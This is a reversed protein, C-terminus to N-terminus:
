RAEPQTMSAEVRIERRREAAGKNRAMAPTSEALPGLRVWQETGEEGEIGYNAIAENRIKTWAQHMEHPYPGVSKAEQFATNRHRETDYAGEGIISKM